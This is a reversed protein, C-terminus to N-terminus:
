ENVELKFGRGYITVIYRSSGMVTKDLKDRLNAITKAITNNQISGGWVADALDDYSVVKGRHRYLHNLVEFEIRTLTTHALRHGDIIFQERDPDFHFGSSPQSSLTRKFHAVAETQWDDAIGVEITFEDNGSLVIVNGQHLLRPQYPLLAEGDVITGNTSNLDTIIFGSSPLYSIKFHQRSIIRIRGQFYRDLRLDCTEAVGAVIDHLPDLRYLAGTQPFHLALVPSM